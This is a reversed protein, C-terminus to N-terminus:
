NWFIRNKNFLSWDNWINFPYFFKYFGPLFETINTEYFNNACFDFIGLVFFLAGLFLNLNLNEKNPKLLNMKNM